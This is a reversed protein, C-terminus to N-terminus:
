QPKKPKQHINDNLNLSFFEDATPGTVEYSEIKKIAAEVGIKDIYALISKINISM